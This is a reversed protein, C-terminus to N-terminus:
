ITLFISRRNWSQALGYVQVPSVLTIECFCFAVTEWTNTKISERICNFSNNSRDWNKYKYFPFTKTPRSRREKEHKQSLSITEVRSGLSPINDSQLIFMKKKERVRMETERPIFSFSLQKTVKTNSSLMDVELEKERWMQRVALREARLQGQQPNWSTAM